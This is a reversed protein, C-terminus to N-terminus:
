PRVDPVQPFEFIHANAKSIPQETLYIMIIFTTRLDLFETSFILPLYRGNDQLFTEIM